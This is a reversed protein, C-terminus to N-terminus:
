ELPVQVSACIFEQVGKLSNLSGILNWKKGPGTAGAVRAKDAEYLPSVGFLNTMAKTGEPIRRALTKDSGAKRM